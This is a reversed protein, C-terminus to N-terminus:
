GGFLGGTNRRQFPVRGTPVQISKLGSGPYKEAATSLCTGLNHLVPPQPRTRSVWAESDCLM